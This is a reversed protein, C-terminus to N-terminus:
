LLKNSIIKNLNISTYLASISLLLLITILIFFIYLIIIYPYTFRIIKEKVPEYFNKNLKNINEESFIENNIKKIILESLTNSM